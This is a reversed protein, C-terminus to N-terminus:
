LPCLTLVGHTISRIKIADPKENGVGYCAAALLDVKVGNLLIAESVPLSM